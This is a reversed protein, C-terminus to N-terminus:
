YEDNTDEIKNNIKFNIIEQENILNNKCFITKINKLDKIPNLTEVKNNEFRLNELKKLYILPELNKVKNHRFTLSELNFLGRLPELNEVKNYDFWIRKLRVLNNLPKLNKVKNDYFTLEELKILKKLHKLKKINNCLFIVKKLNKLKKLPRLCNIKSSYCYLTELNSIMSLPKLNNIEVNKGIIIHKSNIIQELENTSIQNEIGMFDKPEFLRFNELYYDLNKSKIIRITKLFLIQWVKDLKYWWEWHHSEIIIEKPLLLKNTIKILNEVKELEDKRYVILNNKKNM